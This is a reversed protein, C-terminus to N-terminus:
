IPTGFDSLSYHKWGILSASFHGTSITSHKLIIRIMLRNNNKNNISICFNSKISIEVIIKDIEYMIKM